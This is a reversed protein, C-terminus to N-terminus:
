SKKVNKNKKYKFPVKGQKKYNTRRLPIGLLESLQEGATKPLDPHHIFYVEKLPRVPNPARPKSRHTFNAKEIVKLSKVAQQDKPFRKIHKTLRKIKNKLARGELKYLKYGNKYANGARIGVKM